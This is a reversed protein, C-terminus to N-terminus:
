LLGLHTMYIDFLVQEEARQEVTKKREAIARRITKTDFGRSKAELMVDRQDDSIAKKEENLREWREILLRLEEGTSNHGQGATM